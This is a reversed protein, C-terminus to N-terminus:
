SLVAQSSTRPVISALSYHRIALYFKDIGSIIVAIFKVNKDTLNTVYVKNKKSYVICVAKRGSPSRM